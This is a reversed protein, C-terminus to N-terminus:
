KREDAKEMPSIQFAALVTSKRRRMEPAGLPNGVLAVTRAAEHDPLLVEFVIDRMAGFLRQPNGDPSHVEVSDLLQDDILRHALVRGGADHLEFWHGGNKGAQPREGPQPPTTM